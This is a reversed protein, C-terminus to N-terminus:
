NFYFSKTIDSRNKNLSTDYKIVYLLFNVLILNIIDTLIFSNINVMYIFSCQIGITWEQMGVSCMNKYM